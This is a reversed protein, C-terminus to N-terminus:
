NSAFGVWACGVVLVTKIHGVMQKHAPVTNVVANDEQRCELRRLPRHLYLELTRRPLSIRSGLTSAIIDANIIFTISKIFMLLNM